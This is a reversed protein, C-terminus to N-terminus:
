RTKLEDPYIRVGISWGNMSRDLPGEGNLIRLTEVPRRGVRRSFWDPLEHIQGIIAKCQVRWECILSHPVMGVTPNTPGVHRQTNEM